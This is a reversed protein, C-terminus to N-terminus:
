CLNERCYWAQARGCLFNAIPLMTSAAMVRFGRTMCVAYLGDMVNSM